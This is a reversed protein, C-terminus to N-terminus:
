IEKRDPTASRWRRYLNHDIGLLDFWRGIIFNEMEELSEQGSYYAIVPPAIITNNLAALKVMNELAIRDFPLERPALLLRKGEKLVVQAARTVLTDSIGHAVKALTNMSCPVILMADVGFSGSAPPAWIESDLFTPDIGSERQAVTRAHDTVILYKEFREPLLRYCKLGLQFGSAGSIAVLIKKM